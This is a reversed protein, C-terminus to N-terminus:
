LSPSSESLGNFNVNSAGGGRDFVQLPIRTSYQTNRTLKVVAQV